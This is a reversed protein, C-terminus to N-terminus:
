GFVQEVKEPSPAASQMLLDGFRNIVDVLHHHQEDVTPLGTVFCSDWRFSEMKARM